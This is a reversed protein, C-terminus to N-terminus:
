SASPKEKSLIIKTYDLLGPAWAIYSIIMNNTLPVIIQPQSKAKALDWTFWPGEVAM